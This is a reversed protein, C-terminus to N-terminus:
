LAEAVPETRRITRVPPPPTGAGAEPLMLVLPVTVLLVATFVMFIRDLGAAQDSYFSLALV